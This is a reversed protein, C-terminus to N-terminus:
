AHDEGTRSPAQAISVKHSAIMEDECYVSLRYIGPNEIKIRPPLQVVLEVTQKPDAVQIPLQPSQALVKMRQDEFSLLVSTAPRVETLAIYAWSRPFVTPFKAAHVSDFTGAIVCKGTEGDRYVHDALILAKLIPKTLM